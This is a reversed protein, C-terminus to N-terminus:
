LAQVIAHSRHRGFADKGSLSVIFNLSKNLIRPFPHAPDLGLPTIVPLLQEHFFQHLWKEQSSNWDSRRIFHVSHQALLPFMTDNLIAYQEDVFRHLRESIATLVELPLMEDPGTKTSSLDAMQILGAVRVEFFEDLNTSSISLFRLRELVPVNDDKAQELVRQNFEIFSLERNIYLNAIKLDANDFTHADKM